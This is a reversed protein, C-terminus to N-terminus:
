VPIPSAVPEPVSCLGPELSADLDPTSILLVQNYWDPSTITPDSICTAKPCLMASYLLTLSSGLEPTSCGTM